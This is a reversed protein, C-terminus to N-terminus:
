GLIEDRILSKDTFSPYKEYVYRILQRLPLAAFDSKFRSLEEETGEPLEELLKKYYRWGRETLEFNRTAYPDDNTEFVINRAEWSEETSPSPQESDVIIRAAALQDVGQYIAESFPGFNHAKFDASATLWGPQLEHEVLFVLKELRTVGEIRGEPVRATM